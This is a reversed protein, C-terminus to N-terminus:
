SASNIDMERVRTNGTRIVVQDANWGTARLQKLFDPFRLHLAALSNQIDGVTATKIGQSELWTCQLDVVFQMLDSSHM